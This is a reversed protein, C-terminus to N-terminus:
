SEEYQYEKVCIELIDPNKKNYVKSDRANYVAAYKAGKKNGYKRYVKEMAKDESDAMVIGVYNDYTNVDIFYVWLNSPITDFGISTDSLQEFLRNIDDVVIEYDTLAVEEMFEDFFRERLKPLVTNIASSAVSSTNIFRLCAKSQSVLTKDDERTSDSLLEISKELIGKLNEKVEKRIAKTKM